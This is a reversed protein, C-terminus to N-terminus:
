RTQGENERGFLTSFFFPKSPNENEFPSEFPITFFNTSKFEDHLNLDGKVWSYWKEGSEGAPSTADAMLEGQQM